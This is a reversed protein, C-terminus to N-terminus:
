NSLHSSKLADKQFSSWQKNNKRKDCIVLSDCINMFTYILYYRYKQINRFGLPNM